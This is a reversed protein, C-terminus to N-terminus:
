KGKISELLECTKCVDRSTPEGCKPCIKVKGGIDKFTKTLAPKIKDYFKIINYKTGPYKEEMYNLFNRVDFRVSDEAYPCVNRYVDIGNLLCYLTTEKEPINRLPKIRTVFEKRKFIMPKAGLRMLRNLDGKLYNMFISQIEDDLNHGVALKTAGLERSKKNLLYRRFVGCYTCARAKKEKIIEDLSKGFEEKFSVLHFDVNLKKCLKKAIKVTKERYGSIGEDVTLAFIKIDPRDKFFKNLLYLTLSSDKGGSLAVCIKDNREVLKEDRIIKKVKSELQISFHKKCWARGEYKRYIVARNGCKYCKM